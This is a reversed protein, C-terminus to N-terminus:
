DAGAEVYEDLLAGAVKPNTVVLPGGICGGECAMVEILNPSDAKLPIKGENMMGFMALTKMGSKGLGNVATARCEVAGSLRSEVARAVGGTRAFGRGEKTPVNERAEESFSAVDIGKAIFLAGAEEITLVYDVLPDDIGERKKALCPGIFVTVCRSDDSKALEATYRMPTKTESVCGKLAPVHLRVARVYAPCCSSTMMKDGRGMREEFEAAEKEACVDAGRAVEYVADFGAAKLAAELQGPSAKFQAAIAPAYMAVVRRGEGGQADKEMVRRIVDVLQSKDIMAGFPCSRMCMGCFICKDFDIKEKGTEDKSIAGVPCADECPVPIKIIAHYPCNQLCLGCNVCKDADISAHRDVTIAKRPCNVMCPRAFCGQCANTVMYHSRVCANCAEHLVTLIPQTPSERALAESAYDSLPREGNEDCDETSIGLSAIVRMRLIERDRYVCCRFPKANKPAIDSPIYFVGERLRGELALRAIRTLIDRKINTANNNLNLM